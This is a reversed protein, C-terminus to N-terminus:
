TGCAYSRTMVSADPASVVTAVHLAAPVAATPSAADDRRCLAASRRDRRRSSRRSRSPASPLPRHRTREMLADYKREQVQNLASAGGALIFVGMATYILQLDFRGSYILYGAVTTFTVALSVKYKILALITKFDFFHDKAPM